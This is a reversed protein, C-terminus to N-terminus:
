RSHRSAVAVKGHAAAASHGAGCQDAVCLHAVALEIERVGVARVDAGEAFLEECQGNSRVRYVNGRYIGVV